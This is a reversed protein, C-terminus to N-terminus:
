GIQKAPNTTELYSDYDANYEFKVLYFPDM